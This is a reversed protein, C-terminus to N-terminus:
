QYVARVGTLASGDGAFAAASVTGALFTRTHTEPTGIRITHSEGNVGRHGVYVNTSGTFNDWGAAYGLAVNRSGTNRALAHSGVATNFSGMGGWLAALGLATNDRGTTNRTLTMAGFATNRFGTTVARLAKYGFASNVKGTTVSALADEGVRYSRLGLGDGGAASGPPGAPGVAGVTLYFVAVASDSRTLALLYTGPTVTGPLTATVQTATAATVTLATLALSVRPATAGFHLGTITVATQDASVQASAILPAATQASLRPQCALVTLVALVVVSRCSMRTSM